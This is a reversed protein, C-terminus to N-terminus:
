ASHHSSLFRSFLWLPVVLPEESPNYTFHCIDMHFTHLRFDLICICFFILSVRRYFASTPRVHQLYNVEQGFEGIIFFCLLICVDYSICRM